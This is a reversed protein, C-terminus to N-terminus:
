YYLALLPFYFVILISSVGSLIMAAFNGDYEYKGNIKKHYFFQSMFMSCSLCLSFLIFILIFMSLVKWLNNQYRRLYYSSHLFIFVLILVASIISLIFSTVIMPLTQLEITINAKHKNNPDVLHYSYYASTVLTGLVILVMVWAYIDLNDFIFLENSRLKVPTKSPSRSRVM